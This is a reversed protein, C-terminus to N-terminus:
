WTFRARAHRAGLAGRRVCADRNRVADIMLAVLHDGDPELADGEHTEDLRRKEPRSAIKAAFSSDTFEDTPGGETCLVPTGCAMAELVPMNFAEARYPSVYCDAARMLNAMAKASLTRGEYILRGAIRARESASMDGLVEQVMERSPYLSDAGKLFLRASPESEVVRAFAALLLDLGKNWTMAGTSLFVFDDGLRLAQRTTRGAAEDPAFIAPDIGHPLVHIREPAFGFREYALAAWHSCTVIEVSAPVEAASGLHSANEQTLVRYEATGFAFRRGTRPASFDPREPRLTFTADPAFSPEPARMAKLAAEEDPSFIGPAPKWAPSYFSLDVFRLDIDARRALCPCHAQEVLAYSHPLFRWGEVLLRRALGTM